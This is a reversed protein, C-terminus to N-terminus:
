AFIIVLPADARCAALATHELRDGRRRELQHAAARRENRTGRLIADGGGAGISAAAAADSILPACGFRAFVAGARTVACGTEALANAPSVHQRAALRSMAM